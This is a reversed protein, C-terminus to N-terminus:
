DSEPARHIPRDAACQGADKRVQLDGTLLGLLERFALYPDAGASGSAVVLEPHKDLASRAFTQLLVSKGCGAEGTVFFIGGRGALARELREDLRALEKERGVCLPAEARGADERLSEIFWSLDVEASSPRVTRAEISASDASRFAKLLSALRRISQSHRGSKETLRELVAAVEAPLDRLEGSSLEPEKELLKRLRVVGSIHDFSDVGDSSAHENPPELAGEVSAIFRYGRGPLTEIYRPSEATDGLAARLRHVAANLGHDTDVFVGEPWLRGALEERTVLEGPCELLAVLM